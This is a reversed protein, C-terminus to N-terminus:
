EVAFGYKKFVEKADETSLFDIFKKAESLNKSSKIAAIPYVIPSHSREPASCVAHVKDSAKADTIYVIGLNANGSEVWTLVEKVNKAFVINPRVTELIDLYNLVEEAYYGAPVSSFECIGIYKGKLNKLDEFSRIEIEKDKSILVLENSLVEKITEEEILGKENLEDVEKRAAPFFLDVPAGQEIQQKLSGSSGFNLNIELNPNEQIYLQKIEEMADKLSSAVSVTLVKKNNVRGVMFAFGIIIILSIILIVKSKM